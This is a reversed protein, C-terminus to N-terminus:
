LFLVPVIVQRPQDQQTPFMTRLVEHREIIQNLSVELAQLHLPGSLRMATPINYQPSQPELQDLFWLRQQAFSLPFSAFDSAKKQLLRALLARKRSSFSAVHQPLASM